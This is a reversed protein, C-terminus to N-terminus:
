AQAGAQAVSGEHGGGADQLVKRAAAHEQDHPVGAIVRHEFEQIRDLQLHAVFDAPWNMFQARYHQLMDPLPAREIGVPLRAWAAELGAQLYELGKALDKRAMAAGTGDEIESLAALHGQWYHLRELNSDLLAAIFGTRARRRLASIFEANM